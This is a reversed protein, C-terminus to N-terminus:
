ARGRGLRRITWEVREAVDKTQPMALMSEPAPAAIAVPRGNKALGHKANYRYADTSASLDDALAANTDADFDLRRWAAPAPDGHRAYNDATRLYRAVAGKADFYLTAM